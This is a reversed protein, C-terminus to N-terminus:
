AHGLVAHGQERSYQRVALFGFIGGIVILLPGPIQALTQNLLTSNSTFTGVFNPTLYVTIIGSLNTVGLVFTLFPWTIRGKWDELLHSAAWFVILSSLWLIEFTYVYSYPSNNRDVLAGVLPSITQYAAGVVSFVFALTVRNAMSVLHAHLTTLAQRNSAASSVSTVEEQLTNEEPTTTTGAM